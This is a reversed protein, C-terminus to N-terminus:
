LLPETTEDVLYAISQYRISSHLSAGIECMRSSSYGSQCDTRLSSKLVVLASAPLEPNIFGRDGAFGCCPVSEPSSVNEACMKALEVLQNQRDAKRMSCPVHVAISIPRRKFKLRPAAFKLLFETIDYIQEGFEKAYQDRLRHFCPSTDILVPYKGNQSANALAKMVEEQKQEGQKNFGKSCFAMGCCLNGINKPIISEYGSKALLNEIRVNQSDFYPGTKYAGFLRSVCSPFYVVKHNQIRAASRVPSAPKPLCPNWHPFGPLKAFIATIRRMASTGLITDGLNALNLLLRAISLSFGMYRSLLDAVRNSLKSHQVARLEKIFTGTDIGIPCLTACLGDVACTQNGQYDFTETLEDLRKPNNGSAKLFCIERWAVIRQRPTLTLNRSPCTRECFGCETCKEIVPNTPPTRKLDSVHIRPNDSLIVEPNLLRQPDFIEKIERMIAFAEAGWEHEVFPAMNRGTGHEAKLSGDYKATVMNAVDNLLGEYRHVEEERNFDACFVFHLNGQLAHGFLVADAYGYKQFLHQLDVSANALVNTPFAVDEIIITTGNQRAIGLSPFLGKRINWLQKSQSNDKTFRAPGVSTCSELINTIAAVQSDLEEDSTAQAEVLLAAVNGDLSRINEPVGPKTEISRLSQRDMLEVAAASSESLRNSAGCAAYIDKFFVLSTAHFQPNSVTHYTIESIFGLTGESGIMLHSIIDIPDTFDILSNLSYGTTNKIRYKKRIRDALSANAKVRQALADVKSLLDRHEQKFREKNADNGTDLISGDALVVRISAMTHYTDQINGCCMGSANNAAIGAIMAADLSAPDPGIKRGFPALARNAESGLVAPGFSALAGNERIDIGNWLRSLQILVSDSIAQGSLSTGAARFTFPINLESCANITRVLEFESQVQVVLKPILRYFSADGGYALTRLPDTIVHQSPVYQVLKRYLRQYRPDSIIVVHKANGADALPQKLM